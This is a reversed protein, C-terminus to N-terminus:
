GRSRTSRSCGSRPGDADLIMDVRSLGRCGSPATAPSRWRPRGGAGGRRAPRRARRLRHAGAHLAGRLRLLRARPPDGRGGPLAWPTPRASCRCPSSAAPCSASWCCGTTTPWRPEDARGPDRRARPGRTIGLASGQEAPKVVLPLGLRERIEPIAEGAGLERFAEQRFAYAARRPSGPPPSTPRPWWRTWPASAPWCARARHVPDRPDRAAGARHRGRRGQRAARHLRRGPREARLTRVLHQDVDIALVEHGLRRLAAEANAGSRLSVERELSRGGKLVAVSCPWDGDPGCLARHLETM